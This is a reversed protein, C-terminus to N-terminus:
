ILIGARVWERVRVLDLVGPTGQKPRLAYHSAEHRDDSALGHEALLPQSKAVDGSGQLNRLPGARRRFLM